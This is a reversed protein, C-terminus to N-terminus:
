FPCDSAVRKQYEQLAEQADQLRAQLYGEEDPQEWEYGCSFCIITPWFDKPDGDIFDCSGCKPCM